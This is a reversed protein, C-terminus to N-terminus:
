CRICRLLRSMKRIGQKQSIIIAQLIPKLEPCICYKLTTESMEVAGMHHPIMERMFNANVSNSACANQMRCFMTTMIKKMRCQYGRLAEEPSCVSSCCGEIAMMNEISKTQETIINLAIEQLPINTTYKLINQSMEIAAQHHPIMQVIFNHSISGTLEAGTMSRIMNELICYYEDLYDKTVNSFCQQRTM